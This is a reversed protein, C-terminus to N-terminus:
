DSIAVTAGFQGILSSVSSREERCVTRVAAASTREQVSTGLISIKILLAPMMPPGKLSLGSPISAWNAM